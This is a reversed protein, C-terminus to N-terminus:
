NLGGIIIINALNHIPSYFICTSVLGQIVNVTCQDDLDGQREDLVRMLAEQM